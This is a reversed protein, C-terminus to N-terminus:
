GAAAAASPPSFVVHMAGVPVARRKQTTSLSQPLSPIVSTSLGLRRGPFGLRRGPFSRDGALFAETKQRSRWCCAPRFM